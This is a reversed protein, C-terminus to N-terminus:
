LFMGAAAFFQVSGLLAEAICFPSFNDHFHHKVTSSLFLQSLVNHETFVSLFVANVGLGKKSVNEM